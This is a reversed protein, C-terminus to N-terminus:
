PLGVQLNETVLITLQQCGESIFDTLRAYVGKSPRRPQSDYNGSGRLRSVM